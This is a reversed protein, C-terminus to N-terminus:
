HVPSPHNAEIFLRMKRKIDATLFLSIDGKGRETEHGVVILYDGTRVFKIRVGLEARKTQAFWRDTINEDRPCDFATALEARTWPRITDVLRVRREGFVIRRIKVDRGPIISVKVHASPPKGTFTITYKDEVDDTDYVRLGKDSWGVPPTKM